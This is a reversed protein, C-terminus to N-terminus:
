ATHYHTLRTETTVIKQFFNLFLNLYCQQRAMNRYHPIWSQHTESLTKWILYISVKHPILRLHISSQVACSHAFSKFNHLSYQAIFITSHLVLSVCATFMQSMHFGLISRICLEHDPGHIRPFLFKHMRVPWKERVALSNLIGIVIAQSYWPKSTLCCPTIVTMNYNSITVQAANRGCVCILALYLFVRPIALPIISVYFYM